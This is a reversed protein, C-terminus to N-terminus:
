HTPSQKSTVIHLSEGVIIFEVATGTKWSKKDRIAKPITIRGGSLLKIRTM